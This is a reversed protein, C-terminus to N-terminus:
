GRLDKDHTLRIALIEDIIEVVIEIPWGSLFSRFILFKGFIRVGLMVLTM